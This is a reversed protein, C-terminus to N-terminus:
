KKRTIKFIDLFSKKEIFTIKKDAIDYNVKLLGMNDLFVTTVLYDVGDLKQLSFLLKKMKGKIHDKIMRDEIVKQVKDLEFTYNMSLAEYPRTEYNEVNIFEVPGTVKFSYMKKHEPLWFDFNVQNHKGDKELDLAFFGSCPFATPHERRFKQYEDSALLKEYYFQFNM